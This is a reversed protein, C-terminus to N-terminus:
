ANASGFISLSASGYEVEFLRPGQTPILDPRLLVVDVTLPRGSLYVVDVLVLIVVTQAIQPYYAVLLVM